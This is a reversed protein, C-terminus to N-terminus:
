GGGLGCLILYYTSLASSSNECLLFYHSINEESNICDQISQISHIMEEVDFRANLMWGCGKSGDGIYFFM